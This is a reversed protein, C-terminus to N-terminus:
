LKLRKGLADALKDGSAKEVDGKREVTKNYVKTGVSIPETADISWGDVQEKEEEPPDGMGTMSDLDRTLREERKQAMSRCTGQKGRCASQHDTLTGTALFATHKRLNHPCLSWNNIPLNDEDEDEDSPLWRDITAEFERQRKRVARARQDAISLEVLTASSLSLRTMSTTSEASGGNASPQKDGNAVSLNDLEELPTM